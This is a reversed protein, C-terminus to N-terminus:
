AGASHGYAGKKLAEGCVACFNAAPPSAAQCRPCNVQTRAHRYHIILNRTYPIWNFAYAFIIVSDHQHFLAYALLLMTGLISLWWFASPVVVRKHKETYFWQVAFRSFFTCNGLWGVVKWFHWEIGLLKGHRWLVDLLWDM